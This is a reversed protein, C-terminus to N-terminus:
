DGKIINDLFNLMDVEEEQEVKDIEDLDYNQKIDIAKPVYWANFGLAHFVVKNQNDENYFNAYGYFSAVQGRKLTYIQKRAHNKTVYIRRSYKRGFKMCVLDMQDGKQVRVVVGVGFVMRSDKFDAQSDFYILSENKSVIAYNPIQPVNYTIERGRLKVKPM